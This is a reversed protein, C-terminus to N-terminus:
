KFRLGRHWGQAQGLHHPHTAMAQGVGAVGLCVLVWSWSSLPAVVSSAALTVAGLTVAPSDMANILEILSRPVTTAPQVCLM